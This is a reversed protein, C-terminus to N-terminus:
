GNTLVIKGIHESTEMLAHAKAAEAMPFTKFILPKIRGNAILPWVKAELAAAIRGKDAISRPRLTAGIWTLRKTMLKTFDAEIKAGGMFAIQALRGDVALADINRQTYSGGVMDLIVDVGRRDTEAKVRAVFDEDRYNIAVDAGLDQCAACKEASGATAFVRVGFAHALQIATTGIGSTGGHVLFSEGPELKARDFVNSWVTFFTEPLAAAEIMSLSGPIPLVQPEPALCYDAYGGGAVLACVKDGPRFRRCDPGVAVVTGACELGPIDPAGPPPPYGGKRQAVDPRNIGAAEVRILLEGNGPQPLPREVPKLVEPAGFGDMAIAIMTAPLAVTEPLALAGTLRCACSLSQASAQGRLCPRGAISM